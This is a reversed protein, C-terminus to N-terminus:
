KNRCLINKCYSSQQFGTSAHFECLLALLFHYLCDSVVADLIADGLFELRENHIDQNNGMRQPASRHRFAISYYCIKRPAFGLIQELQKAVYRIESNRSFRHKIRLFFDVNHM